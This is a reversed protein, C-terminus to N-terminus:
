NTAREVTLPRKAQQAGDAAGDVRLWMERLTDSDRWTKVKRFHRRVWERYGPLKELSGAWLVVLRADGSERVAEETTLTGSMVRTGSVDVLRPPMRRRALFAQLPDDTVVVDGRGTFQRMLRVSEAEAPDMRPKTGLIRWLPAGAELTATPRALMLVAVGLAALYPYPPPWSRALLGVGAGALVALPPSVLLAHRIFVPRHGVLFAVSSVFWLLLWAGALADRKLLLWAGALALVHVVLEDRAYRLLLVTGTRGSAGAAVPRARLHM